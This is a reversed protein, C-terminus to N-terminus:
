CEVKKGTITTTPPWIVAVCKGYDPDKSQKKIDELAEAYCEEEDNYGASYCYTHGYQDYAEYYWYGQAPITKIIEIPQQEPTRSSECWNCERCYYQLRREKAWRDGIDESDCEPCLEPKNM